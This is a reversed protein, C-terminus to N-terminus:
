LILALIRLVSRRENFDSKILDFNWTWEERYRGDPLEAIATKTIETEGSVGTFYEATDTILVSTHKRLFEIHKQQVAKRFASIEGAPLRTKRMLLEAPLVELQTLINLSIVMDQSSGTNFEPINLNELTNIRRFPFGRRTSNWVNEILGGTIDAEVIGVNSFGAFQRVVDPPQVIDVLTIRAAKESMEAIPLDLLWGSGLVTIKEPKFHDMANLIFRRCRELHSDWGGEQNLHRYIIGRQYDYYGM